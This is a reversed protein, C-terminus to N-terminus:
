WLNKTETKLLGCVQFGNHIISHDLGQGNPRQCCTLNESIPETWHRYPNTNTNEKNSEVGGLWAARNKMNQMNQLFFIYM